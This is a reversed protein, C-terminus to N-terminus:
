RKEGGQYDLYLISKKKGVIKRILTRLEKEIDQLPMNCFFCEPCTGICMYRIIRSIIGIKKKLKKYKQKNKQLMNTQRREYDRCAKKIDSGMKKIEKKFLANQEKLGKVEELLGFVLQDRQREMRHYQESEYEIDGTEKGSNNQVDELRCKYERFLMMENLKSELAEQKKKIEKMKKGNM